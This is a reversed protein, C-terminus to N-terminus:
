LRRAPQPQISRISGHCGVAIGDSVKQRLVQLRRAECDCFELCHHGLRLPGGIQIKTGIHYSIIMYRSHDLILYLIINHYDYSQIEDILSIIYVSIIHRSVLYYSIIHDSTIIHHITHIPCLMNSMICQKYLIINAQM